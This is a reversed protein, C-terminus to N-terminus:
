VPSPLSARHAPVGVAEDIVVEDSVLVLLAAREGDLHEVTPLDRHPREERGGALSHDVHSRAGPDKGTVLCRGL